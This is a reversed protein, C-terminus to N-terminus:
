ANINEINSKKTRRTPKSPKTASSSSSASPTSSDVKEVCMAPKTANLLEAFTKCTEKENNYQGWKLTRDFNQNSTSIFTRNMDKIFNHAYEYISDFEVLVNMDKLEIYRSLVDSGATIVMTFINYYETNKELKKNANHLLRKFENEDIEKKLYRIRLKENNQLVDPRVVPVHYGSLERLSIVYREIRKIVDDFKKIPEISFIDSRRIPVNNATLFVRPANPDFRHINRNNAEGARPVLGKKLQALEEKVKNYEEKSLSNNISTIITETLLTDFAITAHRDNAIVSWERGCNNVIDNPNRPVIGNQQNRIYEFYHPNHINNEEIRGTRWSFATNCSTCFMQDCGEIKFILSSCAPCPRSDSEILKASAVIDPNCVHTEEEDNLGKVELCMKCTYNQCINCKWSSNIFGRCDEFPCKRIYTRKKTESKNERSATLPMIGTKKYEEGDEITNYGNRIDHSLNLKEFIIRRLKIIEDEHTRIECLISKAYIEREVIDQTAPLMAKERDFMLNETKERLEENIFKLTFHERLFKRTWEKQCETNM